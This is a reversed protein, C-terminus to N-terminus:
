GKPLFVPFFPPSFIKKFVNCCWSWVLIFCYAIVSLSRNRNCSLLQFGNV